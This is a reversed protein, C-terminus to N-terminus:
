KPAVTELFWREVAATDAIDYAYVYEPEFPGVKQPAGTIIAQLTSFTAVGSPLLIERGESYHTNYGTAHGIQVAGFNRLTDVAILCSSFCRTDTLVYVRGSIAPKLSRKGPKSPTCQPNGTLARGSALAKRMEEIAAAYSKEGAKDGQPKFRKEIMESFGAINGPSARYVVGCDSNNDMGASASNVSAKGWLETILQDSYASNGGGNGRLDIVVFPASRVAERAAKVADIVPQAAGSLSQIAIWYGNGVKRLGFGAQGFPPKYHHSFFEDSSIEHWSLSVTRQAGDVAFVCAAPRKLFPNGSDVLLAGATKVLSFEATVDANFRLRASALADAPQGDCSILKAGTLSAGSEDSAVIWGTSRKAMVIGAWSLTPNPTLPQARIHGDGMANAFEGLVAFLGPTGNVQRARDLAVTHAAELRAVFAKDGTEPAAAPHNEKLLHYAAEVDNRALAPWDTMRNDAAQAVAVTALLAVAAWQEFSRM